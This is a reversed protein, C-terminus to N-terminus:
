ENELKRKFGLKIALADIRKFAELEVNDFPNLIIKRKSFSSIIILIDQQLQKLEIEQKQAQEIIKTIREVGWRSAVIDNSLKRANAQKVLISLDDLAEDYISKSM